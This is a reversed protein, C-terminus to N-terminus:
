GESWPDIVSVGAAAFPATDRTAVTMGHTRAIAAILGDAMGIPQGAAQVKAMLDAYAQTAPLDFALIRSAFAPLVQTELREVLAKRRRGNPLRAVGYRLEAVTVVSLFLTELPQADLWAVVRPEPAARLPESILNTDLLIM